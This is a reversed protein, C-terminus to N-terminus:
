KACQSELPKIQNEAGGKRSAGSSCIRIPDLHYGTFDLGRFMSKMCLLRHLWKGTRFGRKGWPSGDGEMSRM